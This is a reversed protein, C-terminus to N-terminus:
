SETHGRYRSDVKTLSHFRTDVKRADVPVDTLMGHKRLVKPLSGDVKTGRHSRRSSEMCGHSRKDVETLKRHM